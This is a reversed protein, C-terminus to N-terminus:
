AIPNILTTVTQNDENLGAYLNYKPTITLDSKGYVIIEGTTSYQILNTEWYFDAMQSWSTLEYTGDENETESIVDSPIAWIKAGRCTTYNDYLNNCYNASENANWDGLMPLSKSIESLKKVTAYDSFRDDKDMAYVLVYKDPISGSVVEYKFTNGVVTYNIVIKDETDELAEWTNTDKKTLKLTGVYSVEVEGEVADNSINVTREDDGNNTISIDSGYCTDGADCHLSDTTSGEVLDNVEIPQNVEITTEVSGYYNIVAATVLGIAFIGLLGFVLYKKNM